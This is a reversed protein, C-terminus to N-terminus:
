SKSLIKAVEDCFDLHEPYQSLNKASDKDPNDDSTPCSSRFTSDGTGMVSFEHDLDTVAHTIPQSTQM